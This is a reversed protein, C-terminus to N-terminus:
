KNTQKNPENAKPHSLVMNARHLDASKWIIDNKNM